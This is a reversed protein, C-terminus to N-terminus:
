VGPAPCLSPRPQRSCPDPVLLRYLSYLRICDEVLVFGSDETMTNTLGPYLGRMSTFVSFLVGTGRFHDPPAHYSAEYGYAPNFVIEIFRGPVLLDELRFVVSEVRPMRASDEASLFAGRAEYASPRRDASLVSVKFLYNSALRDEDLFVRHAMLLSLVREYAVRNRPSIDKM